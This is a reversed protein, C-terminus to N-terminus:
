LTVTLLQVTQSKLAGSAIHHILLIVKRGFSLLMIAVLSLVFMSYLLMAHLITNSTTHLYHDVLVHGSCPEGEHVHNGDVNTDPDGGSDSLRLHFKEDISFMRVTMM